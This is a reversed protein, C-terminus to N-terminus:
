AGCRADAYTRKTAYNAPPRCTLRGSDIDELADVVHRRSRNTARGKPSSHSSSASSSPTSAEEDDDVLLINEPKLDTHILQISHLFELSTLLQWAFARVCYLPFPQYDHAKLYDYLSCGLKEFVMCVHGKYEFWKFM